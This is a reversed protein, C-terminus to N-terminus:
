TMAEPKRDLRRQMAELVREHEWRSIRRYDGPTCRSKMPCEPCASTWYRRIQLGNEEHTYRYIAREGAPCQYEDDRGIYIFDAQRVTRAGQRQVDDAQARVGPGWRRQM